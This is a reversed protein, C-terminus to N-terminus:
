LVHFMCEVFIRDGMLERQDPQRLLEDFPIWEVNRRGISPKGAPFFRDGREALEEIQFFLWSM